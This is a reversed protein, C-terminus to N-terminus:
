GIYGNYNSSNNCICGNRNTIDRSAKDISLIARFQKNIYRSVPIYLYKDYEFSYNCKM